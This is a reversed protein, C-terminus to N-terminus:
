FKPKKVSEIPQKVLHRKAAIKHGTVAQQIPRVIQNRNQISSSFGSM